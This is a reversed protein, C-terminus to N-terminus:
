EAAAVRWTVLCLSCKKTRLIMQGEKRVSEEGKPDRAAYEQRKQNGRRRRQQSLRGKKIKLGQHEKDDPELHERRVPYKDRSWRM